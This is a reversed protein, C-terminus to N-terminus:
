SSSNFEKKLEESEKEFATVLRVLEMQKRRHMMVALDHRIIELEDSSVPEEDDGGFLAKFLDQTNLKNQKVAASDNAEDVPKGLTKMSALTQVIINAMDQRMGFVEFCACVLKIYRDSGISSIDKKESTM